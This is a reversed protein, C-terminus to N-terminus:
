KFTPKPRHILLQQEANPQDTYIQGHGGDYLQHTQNVKVTNWYETKTSRLSEPKILILAM